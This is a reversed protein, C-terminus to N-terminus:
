FAQIAGFIAGAVGSVGVIFAGIKKPRTWFGTEPAEPEPAPVTATAEGSAQATTVSVRARKGHVAVQIAQHVAESSPIEDGRPTAARLEAVLQTLATRVQDTVGRIAAPVVGWYIREVSSYQYQLDSNMFRAIESGMPLGIRVIGEREGQAILAELEGIGGRFEVESKIDDRVFDPLVSPSITQGKVHANASFGDIMLPAPVVRYDPLPTVELDKYGQLEVTAWDRLEQSGSQGGLALCKRLAGAVSASENLVDREIQDLLSESRVM